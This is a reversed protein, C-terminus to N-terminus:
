VGSFASFGGDIPLVVGTIFSAADSCLFQVAGNLENIDGFRSMPTKHIVRESRETLSGDPKLLLAKNQNGIFFGPAIANVRVKDGYNSALECAMWQTLSNIGSKAISYGMVRSISNYAAMSSINIISGNGSEAIMKGFVLSPYITGQLNLDIGQTIDQLDLDFIRQDEKQTAGPVNGGAVNVLVDVKNYSKLILDGVSELNNRDLVDCIFGEVKPSIKRLEEVTADLKEQNRGLVILNAGEEAFSRAISGGLVGTAGTIITVKNKISFDNM